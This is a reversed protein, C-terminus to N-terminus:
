RTVEDYLGDGAGRGASGHHCDRGGSPVRLRGAAMTAASAGRCPVKRWRRRVGRRRRREEGRRRAPPATEQLRAAGDPMAAQLGTPRQRPRGGGRPRTPSRHRCGKKGPPGEVTPRSAEAGRRGGPPIRRREHYPAATRVPDERGPM